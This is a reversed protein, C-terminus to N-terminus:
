LDKHWLLQCKRLWFPKGHAFVSINYLDRLTHFILVEETCMLHVFGTRLQSYVYTIMHDHMCYSVIVSHIACLDSQKQRLLRSMKFAKLDRLHSVQPCLLFVATFHQLPAMPDSSVLDQAGWTPSPLYQSSLHAGLAGVLVTSICPRFVPTM